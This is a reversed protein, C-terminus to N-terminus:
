SSSKVTVTLFNVLTRTFIDAKARGDIILVHIRLTKDSLGSLISGRDVRAIHCTGETDTYYLITYITYWITNPEVAIIIIIIIIIVIIHYYYSRQRDPCAQGFTAVCARMPNDPLVRFGLPCTYKGFASILRSNCNVRIDTIIEEPNRDVFFYFRM